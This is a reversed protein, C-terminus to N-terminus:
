AKCTTQQLMVESVWIKYPDKTQRWPLARKNKEFWNLLKNQLSPRVSM